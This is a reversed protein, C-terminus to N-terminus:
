KWFKLVLLELTFCFLAGLLFIKWLNQLAKNQSNIIVKKPNNSYDIVGINKKNFFAIVEKHNAYAMSSEKRDYNLALQGKKVKSDTINYIGAELLEFFGTGYISIESYLANKQQIVKPIIDQENKVLHIPTGQSSVDYLPYARQKGLTLFLPPNRQSLEGIRLLISPFLADQTFTSYESNLSSAYLFVQNNTSSQM